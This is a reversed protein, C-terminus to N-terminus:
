CINNSKGWESIKKYTPVEVNYKEALRVVRHVLGDFESSGGKEVDRQMSTTANKILGNLIKMNIEKIDEEFTIGMAQGLLEVEKVLSIFTDQKEGPVMFDGAVANHYLGAAGIPSVFSFKQLADRKINESLYAEIGANRLDKEVIEAIKQMDRSQNDRFGFYIKFISTPQKIVGPEEIMSFIYICGDLVTCKSCAEQMVEGTGFVNLVPIVLTNEKAIRNIFTNTEGISYYKVCVFIVDPTENYEDMTCAKANNVTFDEVRTSHVILGNERISKLHSGRAIFTVDNGAKALYAGICGGTGGTGIILYKM